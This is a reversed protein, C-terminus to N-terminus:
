DAQTIVLPKSYTAVTDQYTVTFAITVLVQTTDNPVIFNFFGEGLLSTKQNNLKVTEISQSDNSGSTEFNAVLSYSPASEFASGDPLDVKIKGSVTDGPRYTELPLDM